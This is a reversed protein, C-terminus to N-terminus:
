VSTDFAISELQNCDIWNIWVCNLQWNIVILEIKFWVCNLQWNIVILEIKIWVCNLQWNIWVCNLQWNFVILEIKFWVCNLWLLFYNFLISLKEIRIWELDFRNLQIIIITKLEYILKLENRITPSRHRKSVEGEGEIWFREWWSDMEQLPPPPRM